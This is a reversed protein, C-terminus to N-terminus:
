ANFAPVVGATRKRYRSAVGIAAVGLALGIAVPLSRRAIAVMAAGAAAGALPHGSTQEVESGIFAGLMTKLM